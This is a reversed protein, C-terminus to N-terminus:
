FNLSVEVRLRRGPAEFGVYWQNRRDFVNDIAVSAQLWKSARLILAADSRLVSPLYLNGTPISSDFIDAAYETSWSFSWRPDIDWSARVGARKGPRQRLPENDDMVRTLLRTYHARLSLSDVPKWHVEFEAGRVKVTDANVLQNTTNDFDVLDTYRTRFLTVGARIRDDAFPQEYGITQGKSHESRLDPNGSLIPPMGLAFFSPPKFGESHSARLVGGTSRLMYRLGASPSTNSGDTDVRDHRVGARLVLDPTAQWKFEGFASRTQRRLDFDAPIPMGFLTYTIRDVGHERQYELGVALENGGPYHFVLNALANERTFATDTLAAPLGIPSRVGPAVGPSDINETRRYRTLSANLETVDSWQYWGRISWSTDVAHRDELTRLEALRIGGSDDPFATSDRDAHRLDIDLGGAAGLRLRASGTVVRNDLKGGLSTRGDRLRSAGVSFRAGDIGGSVRAHVSRYDQGGIGGGAEGHWENSRAHRTVINIVGGMADAGYISSAAGRLVEIREIQNPDLGSLDFGGGRSNTPDNVRVGDILVLVHNPDSGRIYPQSLGGPGGLADIQLGPVQRFLDVGTAPANRTIEDRTVVTISDAAEEQLTPVRYATVVVDALRAEDAPEVAKAPRQPAEQAFADPMGGAGVALLAFLFSTVSAPSRSPFWGAAVPGANAAPGVVGAPTRGAPRM